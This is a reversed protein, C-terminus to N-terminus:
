FVIFKVVLIQGMSNTHTRKGYVSIVRSITMFRRVESNGLCLTFFLKFFRRLSGGTPTLQSLRESLSTGYTEKRFGRNFIFYVSGWLCLQM